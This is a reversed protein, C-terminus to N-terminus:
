CHTLESGQEGLAEKVVDTVGPVVEGLEKEGRDKHTGGHQAANYSWSRGDLFGVVHYRSEVRRVSSM